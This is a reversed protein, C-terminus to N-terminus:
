DKWHNFLSIDNDEDDEKWHSFLNIDEKSNDEWRNPVEEKIRNFSFGDHHHTAEKINDTKTFDGYEDEIYYGKPLYNRFLM